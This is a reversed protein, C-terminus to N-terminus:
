GVIYVPESRFQINKCSLRLRNPVNTLFNGTWQLVESITPTEKLVSKWVQLNLLYSDSSIKLSTRWAQHLCGHLLQLTIIIPKIAVAPAQIDSSTPAEVSNTRWSCPCWGAFWYYGTYNGIPLKLGPFLMPWTIEMGTKYVRAMKTYLQQGTIGTYDTSLGFFNINDGYNAFHIKKMGDLIISVDDPVEFAIKYTQAAQGNKWPRENRFQSGAM